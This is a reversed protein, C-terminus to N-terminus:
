IWYILDLISVKLSYCSGDLAKFTGRSKSSFSAFKFSKTVPSKHSETERPASSQEINKTKNQKKTKQQNQTHTDHHWVQSDCKNNNNDETVLNFSQFNLWETKM